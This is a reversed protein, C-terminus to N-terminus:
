SPSPIGSDDASASTPKDGNKAKRGRRREAIGDIPGAAEELAHDEDLWKGELVPKPDAHRDVEGSNGQRRRGPGVLQGGWCGGPIPAGNLLLIDMWGDNDYDLFACGGGIEELFTNKGWGGGWRKFHIVAKHTIDTLHVANAPANQVLAGNGRSSDSRHPRPTRDRPSRVHTECRNATRPAPM